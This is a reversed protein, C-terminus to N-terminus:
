RLLGEDCLHPLCREIETTRVASAGIVEEICAVIEAVTREGTCLDFIAAASENLHHVRGRARQRVILSDPAEYIELGAAQRPRLPHRGEGADPQRVRHMVLSFDQADPVDVRELVAATSAPHLSGAPDFMSFALGLSAYLDLVAGPDLGRRALETASLEAIVTMTPNAALTRAMGAVVEHDYGQADIKVVDVTAPAVDDLRVCDVVTPAEGVPVLRHAGRNREDLALAMPGPAGAVAVPLVRVQELRHRALNQRLLALNRAEPEFALVSGTPGVRGAALVSFYGVHAGVDVFCQGPGLLAALYNTEFPEWVGCSRLVATIVEDDRALLLPGVVTELEEVPESPAGSTEGIPGNSASM